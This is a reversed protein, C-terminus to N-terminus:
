IRKYLAYFHKCICVCVYLYLHVSTCKYISVCIRAYTYTYIGMKEECHTINHTLFRLTFFTYYMNHVWCIHSYTNVLTHSVFFCTYKYYWLLVFTCVFKCTAHDIYAICVCMGICMCVYLSLNTNHMYNLKSVTESQNTKCITVRFIISM